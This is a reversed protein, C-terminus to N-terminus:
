ERGRPREAGVREEEGYVVRWRAVRSLAASSVVWRIRLVVASLVMRVVCWSSLM